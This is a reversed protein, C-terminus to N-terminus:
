NKKHFLVKLEQNNVFSKLFKQINNLIRAIFATIIFAALLSDAFLRCVAQKRIQRWIAGAKKFDM